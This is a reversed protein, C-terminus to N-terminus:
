FKRVNNLIYISPYKKITINGVKRSNNEQQRIYRNLGATIPYMGYWAGLIEWHARGKNTIKDNVALPLKDNITIQLKDNIMRQQKYADLLSLSSIKWM